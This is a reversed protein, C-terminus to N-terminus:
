RSKDELLFQNTFRQGLSVTPQTFDVTYIPGTSQDYKEKATRDDSYSKAKVSEVYDDTFSKGTDAKQKGSGGFYYKIADQLGDDTETSTQKSSKDSKTGEDTKPKDSETKKDDNKKSAKEADRKAKEDRNKYFDEVLTKRKQLELNEVERKLKAGADEVQKENLGMAEKGVKVLWDKIVAKGAEQIAPVASKKVFDNIFEKGKSTKPPDLEAAQQAQLDRYQKELQLHRISSMLEAESMDKASKKAPASSSSSKSKSEDDEDDKDSKGKKRSGVKDKSFINQYWKMGKRGYHMLEESSDISSHIEM